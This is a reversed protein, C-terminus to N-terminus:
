AELLAKKFEGMSTIATITCREPWNARVIATAFPPPVSNGCRAVQKSKPYKKGYCDYEIKYDDPFGQARYLERPELMRMCIDFIRYREGHLEIDAGIGHKELFVKVLRSKDIGTITGLPEDAKHGISTNFQRSIFSAIVANNDRSELKTEFLSSTLKNANCNYNAASEVDNDKQSLLAEVVAHKNTSVITGLPKDLGPVRPEQGDREGYGTQILTAAVVSCRDKTTVTHLPEDAASGLKGGGYYKDIFATVLANHDKATVTSLPEEMSSGAGKYGGGYCKEIFATALGFRNSTDVTQLPETLEQGRVEDKKTEAHYKIIFPAADPQLHAEVLCHENKNVITRLPEDIGRSREKTNSQGISTILSSVLFNRNGTTITHLPEDTSSGVNRNNNCMITPCVLSHGNVSTVTSLPQRISEPENDFKYNLIFPEPNEAVFKKIGRAIRAMTADALPKERDFISRSPFDWEICEAITRWPLLEGTKVAEKKPNGHTIQPWEIPKGDRRFVIFLRCRSTPAGYEYATLLRWEVEYGLNKMAKIFKKFTEGKRRKDPFLQQNNVPVREGHSAVTGDVKLVRGTTKDRKAVLPCWDQFEKVNEMSIIRPKVTGAWKVVVWALGRISKKVPKGGKAVSFHTCDPSFHAWGVPYGMCAKRPDVQFINENYHITNPHNARHMAIADADHNIGITVAEGIAFEFGTSWGGGGCFGDVTIERKNKMAIDRM